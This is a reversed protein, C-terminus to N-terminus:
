PRPPESGPPEDLRLQPTRRIHEIVREIVYEAKLNGEADQTQVIRVQARLMDGKSFPEGQEVRALFGEDEIASWFTSVGDTLRWKNGEIFTVAAIQLVREGIEEAVPTEEDGPEFDPLEAASITVERESEFAVEDIGDRALPELVNRVNKRISLRDYLRLVDAPVELVDGDDLTLRIM